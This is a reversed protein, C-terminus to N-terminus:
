KQGARVRPRSVIIPSIKRGPLFISNQAVVLPPLVQRRFILFMQAFLPIAPLIQRLISAISEFLAKIFLPAVAATIPVSCNARVGCPCGDVVLVTRGSMFDSTGRQHAAFAAKPSSNAAARIWPHTSQEFESPKQMWKWGVGGM